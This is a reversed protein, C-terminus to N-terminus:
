TQERDRQMLSGPARTLGRRYRGLRSSDAAEGVESADAKAVAAETSCLGASPASLRRLDEVMVSVAALPEAAHGFPGGPENIYHWRNGGRAYFAMESDRNILSPAM